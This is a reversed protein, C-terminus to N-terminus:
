GYSLELAETKECVLSPGLGEFRRIRDSTAEMGGQIGLELEDSFFM